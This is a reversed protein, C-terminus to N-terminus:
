AAPELTGGAPFAVALVDALTTALHFRVEAQVSAPVDDLDPGNRVPLIVDTLGARHAALSK